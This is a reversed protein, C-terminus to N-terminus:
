DILHKIKSFNKFDFVEIFKIGNEKAMKRKLPDRITWTKIANEYFKSNQSKEQWHKLKLIHKPDNSNFPAAGHTWSGQLEIYL